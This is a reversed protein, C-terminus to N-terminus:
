HIRLADSASSTLTGPDEIWVYQVHFQPLQVSPYALPYTSEGAANSTVLASLVLTSPDIWIDIGLAPVGPWPSLAFVLLGIATAPARSCAFGFQANGIVADSLAHITPWGNSGLTPAGRRTTGNPILQVRSVFADGNGAYGPQAPNALPLNGSYSQGAITAVGDAHRAVFWAGDNSSGGLLSAYLLQRGDASFRAVFGDNLAYTRRLAGPTTPLDNAAYGTWGVLTLEGASDVACDLGEDQGAGGFYTGVVLAASGAITPDLEVLFGDGVYGNGAARQRPVDARAALVRVPGSEAPM